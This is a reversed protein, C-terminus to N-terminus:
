TQNFRSRSLVLAPCISYQAHARARALSIRSAICARSAKVHLALRMAQQERLLEVSRRGPM